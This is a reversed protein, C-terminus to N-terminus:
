GVHSSRQHTMIIINWRFKFGLTFAVDVNLTVEPEGTSEGTHTRQHAKLHSSKTYVKTCGSFWDCLCIHFGVKLLLSFCCESTSTLLDLEVLWDITQQQSVENLPNM